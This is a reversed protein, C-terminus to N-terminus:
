SSQAWRDWARRMAQAAERADIGATGTGLGTCRVSTLGHDRAVRLMAETAREVDQARGPGPVDVTPAVIVRPFDPDRTPVVLAQGIPLMGCRDYALIASRVAEAVGLRADIVADVGGQMMGLSNAPSVVADAPEGFLDGEEVHVDTGTFAERLAAVVSPDRDSLILQM